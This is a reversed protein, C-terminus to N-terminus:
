IDCIIDEEGKYVNANKFLKCDIASEKMATEFEKILKNKKSAMKKIYEDITEEEDPHTTLYIYVKIYRDEEPLGKHSCYRVGRGIVQELM